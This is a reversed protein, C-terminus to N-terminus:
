ETFTPCPSCVAQILGGALKLENDELDSIFSESDGFLEAGALKIDDVKNDANASKIDNVKINAMQTKRWYHIQTKSDSDILLKQNM